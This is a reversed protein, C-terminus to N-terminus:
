ERLSAVLHSAKMRNAWGNPSSVIDLQTKFLTWSTQGDFRLYKITPRSYMVEPIAPFNNPKIELDRIREELVSIKGQVKDEVKVIKGPVNGEVETIKRQVDGKVEEIEGKVDQVDEEIKQLQCFTSHLLKELFNQNGTEEQRRPPYSYAPRSALLVCGSFRATTAYLREVAKAVPVNRMGCCSRVFDVSSGIMMM